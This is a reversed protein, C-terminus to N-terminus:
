ADNQANGDRYASPFKIGMGHQQKDADANGHGQEGSAHCDGECEKEALFFAHKPQNNCIGKGSHYKHAGGHQNVVLQCAAQHSGRSDQKISDRPADRPFINCAPIDTLFPVKGTRKLVGYCVFEGPMRFDGFHNAATGESLMRVFRERRHNWISFFFNGPPSYATNVM